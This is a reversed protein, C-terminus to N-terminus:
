SSPTPSNVTVEFQQVLNAAKANEDIKCDGFCNWFQLTYTHKEHTAYTSDNFNLEFLYSALKSPPSRQAGFSFIGTAAVGDKLPIVLYYPENEGHCAALSQSGYETIEWNIELKQDNSDSVSLGFKDDLGFKPYSVVYSGLYIDTIEVQDISTFIDDDSSGCAVFALMVYTLFRTVSRSRLTKRGRVFSRRNCLMM